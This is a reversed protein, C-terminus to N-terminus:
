GLEAHNIRPVDRQDPLRDSSTLPGARNFAASAPARDPQGGLHVDRGSRNGHRLLTDHVLGTAGNRGSGPSPGGAAGPAPREPRAAARRRGPRVPEGDSGAALVGTVDHLPREATLQELLAPTQGLRHLGRDVGERDRANLPPRLPAARRRDSQSRDGPYHEPAAPFRRHDHGPARLHGALQEVSELRLAVQTLAVLLRERQEATEAPFFARMGPSHEFLHQHSYGAVAPDHPEVVALSNRTLVPAVAM